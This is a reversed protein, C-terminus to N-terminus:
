IGTFNKLHEVGRGKLENEPKPFIRKGKKYLVYHPYGQFDKYFTQLKNRLEKEGQNEGDGQITAVYVINAGKQGYKDAFDQLAKKAMTCHGCYNAQIFIIITKDKPIKPNILNGENDFDTIELYPINILYKSM